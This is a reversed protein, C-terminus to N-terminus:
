IVATMTSAFHWQYKRDSGSVAGLKVQAVSYQGQAVWDTCGFRYCEWGFWVMPLELLQQEQQQQM